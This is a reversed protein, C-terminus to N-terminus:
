SPRSDDAQANDSHSRRELFHRVFSAVGVAVGAGALGLGVRSITILRSWVAINWDSGPKPMREYPMRGAALEGMRVQAYLYVVAGGGLLLLAAADGLRVVRSVRRAPPRGAPATM